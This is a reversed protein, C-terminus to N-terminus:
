FCWTKAVTISRRIHPIGWWTLLTSTPLVIAAVAALSHHVRAPDHFVHDTLLAVCTAGAMLGIVNNFLSFISSIQARMQNPAILQLLPIAMAFLGFALAVVPALLVLIGAPSDMLPLLIGLPVLALAMLLSTRVLADASRRKQLRSAIAVSALIGATACVGIVLGMTVGTRGPSWAFRRAFVSPLWILIADAYLAFGGYAFLLVTFTQRNENWIFRVVEGVKAVPIGDSSHGVQASSWRVGRRLPERISLILLAFIMGPAGVAIFTAQWAAIPGFVPVQLHPLDSVLANMYGGALFALGSGIAIALSYLTLPRAREEPPFYDSIISLAAPSLAAEGVGVGVRAAFLQWFNGALGCAATMLSWLFIGAAILNRRNARDALRGLPLGLLVYFLAFASGALLSVQTDTLNMQRRIPELMLSLVQRDIYSLTYAATLVVVVYWAHSRRPWRPASERDGASAAAGARLDTNAHM